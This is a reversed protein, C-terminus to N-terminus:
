PSAYRIAHIARDGQLGAAATKAGNCSVRSRSFESGSGRSRRLNRSAILVVNDRPLNRLEFHSARNISKLATIITASSVGAIPSASCNETFDVPNFHKLSNITSSGDTILNVQM